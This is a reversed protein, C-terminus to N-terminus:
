RQNGSPLPLAAGACSNIRGHPPAPAAFILAQASIRQAGLKHYSGNINECYERGIFTSFGSFWDKGEGGLASIADGGKALAQYYLEQSRKGAMIGGICYLGIDFGMQQLERPSKYPTHPSHEIMNALNIGPSNKFEEAVTKLQEEIAPAEVFIIDAGAEIYAHGRKIAGDLGEVAIGDTRAMITFDDVSRAYDVAPKIRLNIMEEQSIIQKGAGHGGAMHGCSKNIGSQDEIQVYQGGARHVNRCTLIVSFPENGYGTDIDVGIPFAPLDGDLASMWTAQEVIATHKAIQERLIFGLDPLGYNAAALYGSVFTIFGGIYDPIENKAHLNKVTEYLLKAEMGNSVGIAVIIRDGKNAILEKLNQRKLNLQSEM